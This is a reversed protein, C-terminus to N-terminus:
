VAVGVAVLAAQLLIRPGRDGGVGPGAIDAFEFVAEIATDHHGVALADIGHVEFEGGARGFGIIEVEAGGAQAGLAVHELFRQDAGVASDGDRGSVEADAAGGKIGQEFGM